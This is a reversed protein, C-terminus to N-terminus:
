AHHCLLTPIFLELAFADATGAAAVRTSEALRM